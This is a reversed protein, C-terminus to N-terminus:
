RTRAPSKCGELNELKNIWDYVVSKSCGAEDSVECLENLNYKVDSESPVHAVDFHASVLVNNRAPGYPTLECSATFSQSTASEM